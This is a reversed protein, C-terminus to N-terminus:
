IISPDDEDPRGGRGGRGGEDGGRGGRGGRGADDGGRGGRGGRGADDGGRGGGRGGRGGTLARMDLEFAEGKMEELKAKQSDNLVAMLESDTKKRSEEIKTRMEEMMARPDPRDEGGDRGGRFANRMEEGAARNAEDASEKIETLKAVQEDTLSLEKRVEESQLLSAMGTRSKVQFAIQDLRKIQAPDLLAELVADAEKTAKAAAERLKQIMATREETSMDRMASFDPRNGENDKRFAAMAEKITDMQADTVKLEKQVDESRLLQSRSITTAGGRQGGQFGGRDGGRQGGREGGREGGRQGGRDGGGREGVRQGGGEGGGRGGRQAEAPTSVLAISLAVACFLSYQRTFRM